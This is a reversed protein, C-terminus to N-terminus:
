FSCARCLSEHLPFINKKPMAKDIQKNVEFTLADSLFPNTGHYKELEPVVREKQGKIHGYGYEGYYSEPHGIASGTISVDFGIHEPNEAKSGIPGFYAKGTQITKYGVLQLIKPLTPTEKSIGQWNWDKPGFPTRNNSEANIWNPTRHRVANQENLISTRSPSSVSPCLIYLFPNGPTGNTGHQTTMSRIVNHM